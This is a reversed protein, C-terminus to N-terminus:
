ETMQCIIGGAETIICYSGQHLIFQSSQPYSRISAKVTEIRLSAGEGMKGMSCIIRCTKTIVKNPNDVLIMFANYPYAGTARKTFICCSSSCAQVSEITFCTSKFTILMIGFVWVT